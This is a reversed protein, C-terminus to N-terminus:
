ITVLQGSKKLGRRQGTPSDERSEACECRDDGELHRQFGVAEQQDGGTVM